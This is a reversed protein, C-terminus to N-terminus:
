LTLQPLNTFVFVFFRPPFLFRRRAKEEPCSGLREAKSCFAYGFRDVGSAKSLSPSRNWTPSDLELNKLSSFLEGLCLKLFFISPVKIYLGTLTPLANSCFCSELKLRPESQKLCIILVLSTSCAPETYGIEGVGSRDAWRCPMFPGPRQDQCQPGM